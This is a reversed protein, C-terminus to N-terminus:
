VKEFYSLDPKLFVVLKDKVYATDSDIEVIDEVSMKGFFDSKVSKESLPVGILTQSLSDLVTELSGFSLGTVSMIASM